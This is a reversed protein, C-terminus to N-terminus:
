GNEKVERLQQEIQRLEAEADMLQRTLRTSVAKRWWGLMKATSNFEVSFAQTSTFSLRWHVRGDVYKGSIATLVCEEDSVLVKHGIHYAPHEIM